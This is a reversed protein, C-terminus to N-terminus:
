TPVLGEKKFNQASGIGQNVLALDSSGTPKTEVVRM